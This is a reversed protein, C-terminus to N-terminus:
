EWVQAKQEYLAITYVYPCWSTTLTNILKKRYASCFKDRNAFKFVQHIKKGGRSYPCSLLCFSSSMLSLQLYLYLDKNRNQFTSYTATSFMNIIFHLNEPDFVRIYHWGLLVLINGLLSPVLCLECHLHNRKLTFYITLAPMHIQFRFLLNENRENTSLLLLVLEHKIKSLHFGFWSLWERYM